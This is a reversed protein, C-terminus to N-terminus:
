KRTENLTWTQSRRENLSLHPCDKRNLYWIRDRWHSTLAMWQNCAELYGVKAVHELGSTENPPISASASRPSIKTSCSWTKVSKLIL